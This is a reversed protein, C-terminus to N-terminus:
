KLPHSPSYMINILIEFLPRPPPVIEYLVMKSLLYIKAEGFHESFWQIKNDNDHDNIKIKTKKKAPTHFFFNNKASDRLQTIVQFICTRHHVAVFGPLQFEFCM